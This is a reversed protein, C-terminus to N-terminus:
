KIDETTIYIGQLAKEIKARAIEIIRDQNDTFQQKVNHLSKPDIDQLADISINISRTVDIKIQFNIGFNEPNIANNNIYTISMYVGKFSLKM